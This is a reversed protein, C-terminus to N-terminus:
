IPESVKILFYRVGEHPTRVRLQAFLPEKQFVEAEFSSGNLQKLIQGIAGDLAWDAIKDKLEKGQPEPRTYQIANGHDDTLGM